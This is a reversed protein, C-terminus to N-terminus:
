RARPRQEVPPQQEHEPPVRPRTHPVKSVRGAAKVRWRDRRPGGRSGGRLQRRSILREGRVFQVPFPTSKATEM